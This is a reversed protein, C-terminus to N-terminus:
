ASVPILPGFVWGAWTALALYPGFAIHEYRGLQGRLARRTLEIVLASAAALLLAGPLASTGLWAGTAAFLKADGMGLGERKALARYSWAVGALALFGIATALVHDFLTERGFLASVALGVVILPLTLRDPLLHSELDALALALLTWALFSGIWFDAGSSTAFTAATVALYALEVLPPRRGITARCHSCRGRLAVWSAFPILEWAALAASCHDCRSRGAVFSMGAAYRQIATAVFSGLFPSALIGFWETDQLWETGGLNM